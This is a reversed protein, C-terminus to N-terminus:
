KVLILYLLLLGAMLASVGVCIKFSPGIRPPLFYAAIGGLLIGLPYAEATPLLGSDRLILAFVTCIGGIEAAKLTWGGRVTVEDSYRM